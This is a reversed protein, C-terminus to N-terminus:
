AADESKPPTAYGVLEDPLDVGAPWRDALYRMAMAFSGLTIDADVRLRALRKSDQFIRSSLTKEEAIGAADRFADCLNLLTHKSIM